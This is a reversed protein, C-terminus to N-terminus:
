YTRTWEKIRENMCKPTAISHILVIIAWLNGLELLPVYNNRFPSIFSHTTKMDSLYFLTIKYSLKCIIGFSFVFRLIVSREDGGEGRQMEEEEEEKMEFSENKEESEKEQRLVLGETGEVEEQKRLGEDM